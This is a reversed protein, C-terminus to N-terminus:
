PLVEAKRLATLAEELNTVVDSPIDHDRLERHRKIQDPKLTGTQTKLELWMARGARFVYLDPIGKTAWVSGGRSSGKFMEWVTCGRAELESKLHRQLDAETNGRPKPELHTAPSQPAHGTPEPTTQAFLRPRKTRYAELWAEDRRATV